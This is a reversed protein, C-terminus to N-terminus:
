YCSVELSGDALMELNSVMTQRIIDVNKTALLRNELADTLSQMGNKFSYVSVQHMLELTRGLDYTDEKESKIKSSLLFGRVM